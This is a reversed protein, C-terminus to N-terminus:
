KRNKSIATQYVSNLFTNLEEKAHEIQTKSRRDSMAGLNIPQISPIALPAPMNAMSIMPISPLQGGINIPAPTFGNMSNQNTGAGIIKSANLLNQNPPNQVTQAVTQAVVPAVVAGALGAMGPLAAGIAAGTAANIAQSSTKVDDPTMLEGIMNSIFNAM